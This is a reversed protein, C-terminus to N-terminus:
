WNYHLSGIFLILFKKKKLLSFNVQTRSLHEWAGTVLTSHLALLSALVIIIFLKKTMQHPQFTCSRCCRPHVIRHRQEVFCLSYTGHFAFSLVKCHLFKTELGVKRQFHFYFLPLSSCTAGWKCVKKYHPFLRTFSSTMVMLRLQFIQRQCFKYSAEKKM